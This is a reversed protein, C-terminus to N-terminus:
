AVGAELKDKLSGLKSGLSRKVANAVHYRQMVSATLAEESLAAEIENPSWHQDGQLAQCGLVTEVLSQEYWERVADIVLTNTPELEYQKAWYGVMDTFVRFDGNAQIINDEPLYAAARDTLYDPARTGDEETVWTVEPLDQHTDDAIDAPEGEDALMAALLAGTPDPSPQRGSDLDDLEDPSLLTPASPKPRILVPDQIKFRGGPRARYRSLKYLRQYQKLREEIADKHNEGSVGAIVDDMFDSIADPMKARFESAIDSYPLSSGNLLLQTRATNATLTQSASAIPEVYLVVRDTGFIVGFQQLRTIGSRGTRLEYLEDQFLAAFHGNNVMESAKARKEYEDLIWWHVNAQSLEETGSAVSHQGLFDAMGRVGRRLNKKTGPEADWGERAKVEVGEPFKFYRANLYRNVWRSPLPIGPAPPEITNHTSSTGLLIVKTGSEGIDDPKSEPSLPMAYDFTGNPLQFQKLGYSQISDDRWLQIMSGQGDKWSQYILGSPNRTAAAIKAGVGFNADLAQRRSTSSLHNIYQVMEKGTMGCGNDIVCLKYQTGGSLEWLNWDVDWYIKTAGSEIANETLERLFQLDDCDQGLRELMFSIDDVGMPMTRDDFLSPKDPTAPEFSETM